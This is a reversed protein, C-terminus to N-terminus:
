YELGLAALASVHAGEGAVKSAHEPGEAVDGGQPARRDAGEPRVVHNWQFPELSQPMPGGDALCAEGIRELGNLGRQGVDRRQGDAPSVRGPQCSALGNQQASPVGGNDAARDIDRRRAQEHGKGLDVVAFDDGLAYEVQGAERATGAALFWTFPSVIDSVAPRLASIM